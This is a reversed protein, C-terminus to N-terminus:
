GNDTCVFSCHLSITRDLHHPISTYKKWFKQFVDTRKHTLSVGIKSKQQHRHQTQFGPCFGESIYKTVQTYYIWWIWRHHWVQQGRPQRGNWDGYKCMCFYQHPKLWPALPSSLISGMLLHSTEQVHSYWKNKLYTTVIVINCQMVSNSDQWNNKRDFSAQWFSAMSRHVPFLCWFHSSKEQVSWVMPTQTLLYFTM